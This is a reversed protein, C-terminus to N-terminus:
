TPKLASPPRADPEHPLLGELAHVHVPHEFGELAMPGLDRFSFAHSAMDRTATCTLIRGTEDTVLKEIRFALVPAEGIMSLGAPAQTGFSELEVPSSALAWDIVLPFDPLRWISSDSALDRALADLCLAALCAAIAQTGSLTGEWFAVLADGPFEKVTGGLAVAEETLRRFVQNVSSQLEASPTGRVLRTYRRIDGTLVTVMAPSPVPLTGSGPAGTGHPPEEMIIMFQHTGVSITQGSHLEIEVNPVLRRGDVRTGNRSTDRVFCRGDTRRTLVCHSRSVTRDTLLLVGSADDRTGDDRGIQLREFFPYWREGPTGRATVLSVSDSRSPAPARYRISGATM